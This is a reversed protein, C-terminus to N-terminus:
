LNSDQAAKISFNIRPFHVRIQGRGNPVEKKIVVEKLSLSILEGKDHHSSGSDVPSIDVMQGKKLHLPDLDVQGEPVFYDSSVITDIADKDSMLEAKGNKKTAAEVAERFREVWANVKPFLTESILDKELADHMGHAKQM